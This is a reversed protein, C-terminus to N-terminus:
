IELGFGIRVERYNTVKLSGEICLIREGDKDRAEAKINYTFRPISSPIEM